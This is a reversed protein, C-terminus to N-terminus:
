ATKSVGSIPQGDRLIAQAAPTIGAADHLILGPLVRDPLKMGRWASVIIMKAPTGARPWLPFLALGGCNERLAAATDGFAAAPLILSLSGKPRVVQTLAAIWRALGDRTAQHALARGADPSPTSRADFWPPNAFVHDFSARAFPLACVDAAVAALQSFGNAAFNETALRALAPDLEVGVGRLGPVRAALCLLGAGAGSGAELVRAGDAAPVSAALLVPEFGTRHGGNFQTYVLRASLLGGTSFESM